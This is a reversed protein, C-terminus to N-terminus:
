AGTKLVYQDSVFPDAIFRRNAKEPMTPATQSVKGISDQYHYSTPIWMAAVAVLFVLSSVVWVFIASRHYSRVKKQPDVTWHLLTPPDATTLDHLAASAKVAQYFWEHSTLPSFISSTVSDMPAHLVLGGHAQSDGASGCGFSGWRSCCNTGVAWFQVPSASPGQIAATKDLIPAVCYTQGFGNQGVARTNDLVVNEDFSIIGADAHLAANATAPLGTYERGDTAELFPAYFTHYNLIGVIVGGIVVIVSILVLPWVVPHRREYLESGIMAAVLVHVLCLLIGTASLYFSLLACIVTYLVFLGFTVLFPHPTRLRHEIREDLSYLCSQM